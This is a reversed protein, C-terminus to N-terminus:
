ATTRLTHRYAREGARCADCPDEGRRRHAEYSAHDGHRERRLLGAGHALHVAHALSRAGLAARLAASHVRVTVVALGLARAIQQHTQGDAVRRLIELQRPTLAPATM